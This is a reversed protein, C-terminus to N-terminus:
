LTACCVRFRLFYTYEARRLIAVPIRVDAEEEVKKSIFFPLLRYLTRLLHRIM